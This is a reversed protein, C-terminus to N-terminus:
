YELRDIKVDVNIELDNLFEEPSSYKQTTEKYKTKYALEYAKLFDVKLTKSKEFCASVKEKIDKKLADKIAKCEEKSLVSLLKKSQITEIEASKVAVTLDLKPKGNEYRIEYGNKKSKVKIGITANKLSEYDINKISFDDSRTKSYCLMYGLVEKEGSLMGKFKGNYFCALNETPAFYKSEGESGGSSSETDSSGSTGGGSDTSGKESESSGSNSSENDGSSSGGETSNNIEGSSSSSSNEKNEFSEEEISTFKLISAVASKSLDENDNLFDQVTIMIGDSEKEKFIFVKQIGIGVSLEVDKTKKIEESAKGEAFLVLSTDKIIRDRVFYNLFVNIDESEMLEKGIVIFNTHSFASVKGAKYSIKSMAGLLSEDKDSIFNVVASVGPSETGPATKVIQATVEYKDDSKDIAIGTVIVRMNLRTQNSFSTPFLLLVILIIIIGLHKKFFNKINFQKKM